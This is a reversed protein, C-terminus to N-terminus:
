SCPSSGTSATLGGKLMERTRQLRQLVRHRGLLEMLEFLGPGITKGTLAVRLPHILVRSSVQLEAALSRVIQEVTARDFEQCRTFEEELRSLYGPIEEGCLYTRVAEPDYTPETFFFDGYRLVDRGVKIRDGLVEVVRAIYERTAPDVAEPLLGERKLTEEVLALVKARDEHMLKRMYVGNMWVLKQYDFVSPSKGVDELHFRAILEELSYIERDEEPYWGLLALYNLIAEPLFGEERYQRVATAGHRKSLKSRDPGLLMPLHAVQPPTWDFARYILLQKPTNSLHEEARIVHTIAMTHDDIVNAFNYLPTGDSRVIIYDDLHEPSFVVEGRILDHVVITEGYDRVRLRITPRRGEAEFRAVEKSSLSRCRGSYRYPRHEAQAKHREAELEEPTCYCYYAHGRELLKRAYEQYIAMRETQRYPGYPGGVDPGEDWTIGLWRFDELIAEVMEETSRSRDTDEIRLIFRGGHHRAFLWNFFATWAGGVHLYGTPSPAFRTRVTNM